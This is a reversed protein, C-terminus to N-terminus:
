HSSKIHYIYLSKICYGKGCSIKSLEWLIILILQVLWNMVKQRLNHLPHGHYSSDTLTQRLLKIKLNWLFRINNTFPICLWLARSNNVPIRLTHGSHIVKMQLILWSVKRCSLNRTEHIVHNLLSLMLKLNAEPRNKNLKLIPQLWDIVIEFYIFKINIKM